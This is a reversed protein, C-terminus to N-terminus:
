PARTFGQRPEPAATAATDGVPRAALEAAAKPYEAPLPAAGGRRLLEDLMRLLLDSSGQIRQLDSLCEPEGIKGAERLVLECCRHLQDAPARLQRATEVLLTAMESGAISRTRAPDLLNNIIGLLQQGHAHITTLHGSLGEPADEGCDELLMESYGIVANLPTRLEHRIRALHAADPEAADLVDAPAAPAPPVSESAAAHPDNM